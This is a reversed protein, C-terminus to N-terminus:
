SNSIDDTFNWGSDGVPQACVEDNNNLDYASGLNGPFTGTGYLSYDNNCSFTQNKHFTGSKKGSAAGGGGTHGAMAVGAFVGFAAV